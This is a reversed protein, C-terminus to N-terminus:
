HSVRLLFGITRPLITVFREPGILGGPLAAIRGRSNFANRAFLQLDIGTGPVEIGMNLNALGYGNFQRNGPDARDFSRYAKSVYSYDVRVWADNSGFLDLEQRVGLNLQIPSVAPVRDGAQRTTFPIDGTLRADTLGLAATLETGPWPRLRTELEFGVSRVAGVNTRFSFSCSPLSLTTQMDRWKMYYASASFMIRKDASGTRLGTELNWVKDAAFGETAETRGLRQLDNRCLDAPVTTNVGGPRYGKAIRVYATSEPDPTYALSISPTIGSEAVRGASFSAGGNLLGSSFTEYNQRFRFLRVGAALRLSPAIRYSLEGFAAWQHSRIKQTGYFAQDAAPTGLGTSPLGIQNDFGPVTADQVFDRRRNQYFLGALYGPNSSEDSAVRLEQTFERVATTDVLPTASDIGLAADLLFELSIRNVNRKDLLSTASTVTAGDLHYAMVASYARTRDSLGDFAKTRRRFPATQESRAGTGLDHALATLELTLREGPRVGLAVRGGHNTTENVDTEGTATNDIYGGVRSRYGIARLTLVEGALPLNIMGRLDHNVGGHHTASASLELGGQVVGPNPRRSVLRIAGGMAGSGIVSGQPGRLVEIRELDFLGFDPNFGNVSIPIEDLYVAVTEQNQPEDNRVSGTTIGRIALTTLGPGGSAVSLGPVTNVYDAFGDKGTEALNGADLVAISAPVREM